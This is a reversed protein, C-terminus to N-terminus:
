QGALGPQVLVGSKRLEIIESETFGLQGLVDANHEGQFAPERIPDQHADPPTKSFHWPSGAVTVEGGSRNPVTRTANWEASWETSALEAMERVIGCAIKAEDLQADLSAMDQFSLIWKQVIGHLQGFNARRSEPSAFRPDDALDPRRMATLYAPFGLNGVLSTPTVFTEGDPGVFFPLDYAGLVPLDDGLDSNGLDVHVRENTALMVAAMAVDVYQGRGTVERDHLAALIAIACHLGAYVDAHSLADSKESGPGLGFQRNTNATMGVEAQVAGAYAMRNRWVGHQGYGSISAYVVRPNVESIADYGLGFSSLTGPRFNEVIIDATSCLRFAVEPAGPVNLDISINRKGANQQAYYGSIEGWRPVAQRSLDGRPPEIKIVEAGLDLLTQTCHPGALVRSFDVVRLGALPGAM